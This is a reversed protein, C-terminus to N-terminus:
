RSIVKMGSIIRVRAQRLEFKRDVTVIHAHLRASVKRKKSLKGLLSMYIKIQDRERREYIRTFNRRNQLVIPYAYISVTNVIVRNTAGRTLWLRNCDSSM